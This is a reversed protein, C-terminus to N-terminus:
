QIFISKLQKESGLYIVSCVLLTVTMLIQEMNNRGETQTNYNEEIHVVYGNVVMGDEYDSMRQNANYTANFLFSFNHPQNSNLFHYFVPAHRSSNIRVTFKLIVQESVGYVSNAENRKHRCQYDFHQVTMCNEKLVNMSGELINDAIVISKLENSYITNM